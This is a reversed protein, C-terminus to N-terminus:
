YVRRLPHHISIDSLSPYIFVKLDHYCSAIFDENTHKFILELLSKFTGALSELEGPSLQSWTGHYQTM